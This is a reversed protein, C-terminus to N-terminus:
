ELVKEILKHPQPQTSSIVFSKQLLKEAAPFLATEDGHITYIVDGVRVPDGIKKHFEIGSTPHIIDASVKRGARLLIGAVGIHETNMSSIFGGETSKIVLSEKSLKLDNLKGSQLSCMKEFVQFAKGSLLCDQAM